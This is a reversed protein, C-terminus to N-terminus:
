HTLKFVEVNLRDEYEKYKEPEYKSTNGIQFYLNKFEGKLLLEYFLPNDLQKILSDFNTTGVTVLISKGKDKEAKYTEEKEM